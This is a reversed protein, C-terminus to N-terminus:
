LAHRDKHQQRAFKLVGFKDTVLRPPSAVVRHSGTKGPLIQRATPVDTSGDFPAGYNLGQFIFTFRM